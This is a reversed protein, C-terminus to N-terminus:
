TSVEDEKTNAMFGQQILNKEWTRLFGEIGSLGNEDHLHINPHQTFRVPVWESGDVRFVVEPDSMLDGRQVHYHAVSIRDVGIREISLDMYGEVEFKFSQGVEMEELDQFGRHQLIERVLDM